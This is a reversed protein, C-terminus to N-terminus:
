HIWHLCCCFHRLLILEAGLLVKSVKFEFGIVKPKSQMAGNSHWLTIASDDFMNDVVYDSSWEGAQNVVTAIDREGHWVFPRGSPNPATVPPRGIAETSIAETDIITADEGSTVAALITSALLLKM